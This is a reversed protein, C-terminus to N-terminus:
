AENKQKQIRSYGGMSEIERFKELSKEAIQWTMNEFFYSGRGPDKVKDLHAECSLVNFTHWAIRRQMENDYDSPVVQFSNCGGVLASIMNTTGKLMSEHPGLKENKWNSMIGHIIISSPVESNYKKLVQELVVKFARIRAADLYFNLGFQFSFKLKALITQIPMGSNSLNEIIDVLQSLLNANSNACDSPSEAILNIPFFAEKNSSWEILEKLVEISPLKAISGNNIRIKEKFLWQAVEDASESQFEFNLIDTVVENLATELDHANFGKQILCISDMGLSLASQIIDNAGRGKKVPVCYFNQYESQFDFPTFCEYHNSSVYLLDNKDYYPESILGDGYNFRLAGPKKEKLENRAADLWERKSTFRFNWQPLNKRKSEPM